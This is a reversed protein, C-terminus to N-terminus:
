GDKSTGESGNEEEDESDDSDRTIQFHQSMVKEIAEVTMSPDNRHEATIIMIYEKPAKRIIQAM